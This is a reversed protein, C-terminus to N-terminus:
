AFEPLVRCPNIVVFTNHPACYLVLIIYFIYELWETFVCSIFVHIEM